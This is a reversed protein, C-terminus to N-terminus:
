QQRPLCVIVVDDKLSQFIPSAIRIESRSFFLVSYCFYLVDGHLIEPVWVWIDGKEREEVMTFEHDVFSVSLPRFIVPLLHHISPGADGM